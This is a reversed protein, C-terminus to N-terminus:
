VFFYFILIQEYFFNSFFDTIFLNDSPYLICKFPSRSRKSMSTYQSVRSFLGHFIKHIFLYLKSFTEPWERRRNSNLAGFFEESNSFAFMFRGKFKHQINNRHIFVLPLVQSCDSM